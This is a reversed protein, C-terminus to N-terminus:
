GVQRGDVVIVICTLILKGVVTSGVGEQVLHMYICTYLVSDSLTYFSRFFSGLGTVYVFWSWGCVHVYVCPM